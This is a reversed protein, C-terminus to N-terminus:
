AGKTKRNYFLIYISPVVFLTLFTSVSLGGIVAVALPRLMELGEGWGLALPLLGAITTFTTMLIPRLRLSSATVVSEFLEGRKERYLLNIYEVLVIANNVVIGVLLILGVFVTAGFPVKAIYLSFIAGILALPITVMIILPDFISDYQVAMVVFVLFIALLIVIILQKNSEIMSEEQGAYELIYGEPIKLSILDSKIESMIKGVNRGIADATVSVMRVQNERNIQVPSESVEVKAIEKLLLTVGNAAYIAINEVAEKSSLKLPDVLMRIDYDVNLTKDTFQTNVRGDVASNLFFAIKSSDLGFDTLKEKNLTIHLEPKSFDISIDSNKVGEKSSIRNQIDQAIEYLTNFNYGKVKIDIDSVSASMIGRMPTRMVKIKAKPIPNEKFEKQLRKLLTDTSLKRQSKSVLQIQIDSENAKEYVNRKQWYGGIMAYVKDADSFSQIVKEIKRTVEDTKELATGIPIKVKVTLKGDDTAPLFEKGVNKFLFITGVFLLFASAIVLFRHSIAKHLINQYRLTITDMLKKRRSFVYEKKGTRIIHASLSPVLTMAILLSVIFSISITIVMDRFLLSIIGGIFFFPVIAVLNTLTSATLASSVERSAVHAAEKPNHSDHQHRTINELMVISNDVLMGVALVLGGLSFINLTLASLGMLIFAGLISVPVATAIIFTRRFDHLFFWIVIIALLGGVVASSGVNKISNVIYYAQSSAIAYNIDEPIIKKKKLEAAKKEIKKVIEVTNANPQKLFSMTVCPHGNFRTMVRQEEHFDAVTAVDKLRIINGERNALVIDGIERVDNFKSLLRVSYDKSGATIRGAPVNMNEARVRSFIHESSLEYKKLKEQNYIIQIERVKGGSTVVAGLGPIGLFYNSLDKEVWQRLFKEDRTKSFVAIDIIPLQSPDAKFIRPEDIDDPLERRVLDLKAKTDQLAVDMDKGFEFYVEISGNGEIASSIVQIADETTAISSEIKKIINEEVEEPSAGKWDVIIRVMPYNIRPLLDISLGKLFFLGLVAVAFALVITGVPRRISIDSLNM